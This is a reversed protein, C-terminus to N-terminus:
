SWQGRGCECELGGNIINIMDGYGPVRGTSRNAPSPTWKGIIVNHSSPKNGDVAVLWVQEYGSGCDGGSLVE